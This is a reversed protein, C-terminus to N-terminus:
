VAQAVMGPGRGWTRRPHNQESSIEFFGASLFYEQYFLIFSGSAMVFYLALIVWVTHHQCLFLAVSCLLSYLFIAM